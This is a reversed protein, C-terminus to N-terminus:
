ASPERFGGLHEPRLEPSRAEAQRLAPEPELRISLSGTSLHSEIERSYFPFFCKILSSFPSIVVLVESMCFSM